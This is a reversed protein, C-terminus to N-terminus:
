SKRLKQESPNHVIRLRIRRLLNAIQSFIEQFHDRLNSRCQLIVASHSKFHFIGLLEVPTDVDKHSSVQRHTRLSVCGKQVTQQATDRHREPSLRQLSKLYHPRKLGPREVEPIDDDQRGILSHKRFPTDTRGEDRRFEALAEAQRGVLKLIGDPSVIEVAQNGTRFIHPNKVIRPGLSHLLTLFAAVDLLELVM